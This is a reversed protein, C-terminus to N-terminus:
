AGSSRRRRPRPWAARRRCPAVGRASGRASRPKAGKAGRRGPARIPPGSIAFQESRVLLRRTRRTTSWRGERSRSRQTNRRSSMDPECAGVNPEDFFCASHRRFGELCFFLLSWCIPRTLSLPRDLKGQKAVRLAGSPKSGNVFGTHATSALAALGAHLLSPECLGPPQLASWRDAPSAMSSIPQLHHADDVSSMGDVEHHLGIVCLAVSHAWQLM